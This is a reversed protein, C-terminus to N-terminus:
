KMGKRTTQYTTLEGDLLSRFNIGIEFKEM